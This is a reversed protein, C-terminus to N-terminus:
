RRIEILLVWANQVAFIFVLLTGIGFWYLGEGGHTVFLLISGIIFPLTQIQGTFTQVMAEYRPRDYKKQAAIDQRTAWLQLTWAFIGLILVEMGLAWISQPMLAAMSTVLVLVLTTISAAARAPLHFHKLIPELNVSLAVMVLGALAASAGAAAIFFDKWGLFNM